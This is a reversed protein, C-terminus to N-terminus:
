ANIKVKVTTTAAGAAAYARGAATNGSATLTMRKNTNDWYVKQGQAINDTSLKAVEFVGTIRLAGSEGVALTKLSIGITDNMLVVAGLATAAAATYDLHDGEAVFNSAM